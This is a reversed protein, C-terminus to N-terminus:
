RAPARGPTPRAALQWLAGRRHPPLACACRASLRGRRETPQEGRLQEHSVFRVDGVFPGAGNLRSSSSVGSELLAALGFDTLLVRGTEDDQLVNDLRVDRHIVDHRHAAELAEALDRLIRRADEVAIPGSGALREELSRGKIYQMVLYPRGDPMTGVRYVQVVGSPHAGRSRPGRARLSAAVHQRM